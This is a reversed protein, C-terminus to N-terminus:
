RHQQDKDQKHSTSNTLQKEITMNQQDLQNWYERNANINYMCPLLENDNIDLYKCYISFLPIALFDLFGLQSKPLNTKQRDMFPSISLNLRREEDGQRYFEEAIRNSWKQHLLLNKASHNLDSCKIAMKLILLRNKENKENQVLNNSQYINKFQGLIDFHLALDTSLVLEIITKRLQSYLNRDINEFINNDKHNCLEFSKATHMNELVSRDNYLIALQHSTNIYYNNNLGAHNYDHIISAFIISFIEHQTLYTHHKKQIFYHVTRVVDAAHISNHYPCTKSYGNEINTLFNTLKIRDIKYTQILNYRKFLATGVFLLPKNKTLNAIEFVDFDWQDINCMLEIFLKEDSSQIQTSFQSYQRSLIGADLGSSHSHTGYVSLVNPDTSQRAPPQLTHHTTDPSSSPHLQISLTKNAQEPTYVTYQENNNCDISQDSPECLEDHITIVDDDGVIENIWRETEKDIILNGNHMAETIKPKFIDNSSGLWSIIQQLDLFTDKNITYQQTACISQLKKMALEMPSMLSDQNIGHLTDSHNSVLDAINYHELTMVYMHGRMEMAENKLLQNMKNCCEIKSECIFLYRKLSEKNYTNYLLVGSSIVYLSIGYIVDYDVNTRHTTVTYTTHVMFTITILTVACLVTIYYMIRCGYICLVIVFGILIYSQMINYTLQHNAAVCWCVGVLTFQCCLLIQQLQNYHQKALLHMPLLCILGIAVCQLVIRTSMGNSKNYIIYNLVTCLLEILTILLMIVTCDILRTKYQQNLQHRYEKEYIAETYLLNWKNISYHLEGISLEHLQKRQTTSPQQVPTSSHPIVANFRNNSYSHYHNASRGNQPANTINM